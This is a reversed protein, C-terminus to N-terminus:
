APSFTPANERKKVKFDTFNIDETNISPRYHYFIEVDNSINIDAPKVTGYMGSM